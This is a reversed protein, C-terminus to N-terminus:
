YGEFYERATQVDARIRTKLEEVSGFKMEDRLRHLFLVSVKAGYAEGKFDLLYTEISFENEGFTPSYGVNTVSPYRKGQWQVESIYVGQKPILAFDTRLNITPFGIQRGRGKGKVVDGKIEYPRGLFANARDLDGERVLKRIRNSGVKEGDITVPEVVELFFGCSQALRALTEPKGGGGKGFTFDYGIVLGKIGLRHVLIDKVFDEAGIQSFAPTFPVIFLVDIGTEEILAKKEELPAISPLGKEPKLIQLPHPNFTMLMTTGGLEAAKMRVVEIITRHGLHIGDYNGITLVPNVFTESIDLSEFVRM